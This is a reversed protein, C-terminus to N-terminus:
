IIEYEETGALVDASLRSLGATPKEGPSAPKGTTGREEPCVHPLCICGYQRIYHEWSTTTISYQDCTACYHLSISNCNSIEDKRTTVRATVCFLKHRHTCAYPLRAQIYITPPDSVDTFDKTITPYRKEFCSPCRYAADPSWRMRKFDTYIGCAACKRLKRRCNLCYLRESVKYVKESYSGCESCTHAAVRACEADLIGTLEASGDLVQMGDRVLVAPFAYQKTKGACNGDEWRVSIHRGQPAETYAVITGTCGRLSVRRGILLEKM